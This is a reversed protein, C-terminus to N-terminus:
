PYKVVKCVVSSGYCCAAAADVHSRTPHPRIIRACDVIQVDKYILRLLTDTHVGMVSPTALETTFSTMTVIIDCHYYSADTNQCQQNPTLFPMRDTFIHPFPPPPCQNTQISHRGLRITLTGEDILRGKCWSTWFNEEPVPEDPHDRFFPRLVTTHTHIIIAPKTAITGAPSIAFPSM